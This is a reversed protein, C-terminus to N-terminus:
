SFLKEVWDPPLEPLSEVSVPLTDRRVELWFPEPDGIAEAQYEGIVGGASISRGEDLYCRTMNGYVTTWGDGHNLILIHRYAAFPGAFIVDGDALAHIRARRARWFVRRGDSEATIREPAPPPESAAARPADISSAPPALRGFLANLEARADPRSSPRSLGATRTAALRESLGSLRDSLERHRTRLEDLRTPTPAPLADPDPSPPAPAAHPERRLQGAPIQELRLLQEVALNAEARHHAQLLALTVRRGDDPQEGLLEAALLAASLRIGNEAETLRSRGEVKARALVQIERTLGDAPVEPPAVRPVPAVPAADPSAAPASTSRAPRRGDAEEVLLREIETEVERLEQLVADLEHAESAVAAATATFLALALLSALFRRTPFPIM